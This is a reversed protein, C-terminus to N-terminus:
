CSVSFKGYTMKDSNDAIFINYRSAIIYPSLSKRVDPIKKKKFDIYMDSSNM